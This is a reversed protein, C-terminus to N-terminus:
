RKLMFSGPCDFSYQTFSPGCSQAWCRSTRPTRQLTRVCRDIVARSAIILLQLVRESTAPSCCKIGHWKGLCLTSFCGPAPVSTAMVLLPNPKHKFWTARNCARLWESDEDTELDEHIIIEPERCLRKEEEAEM